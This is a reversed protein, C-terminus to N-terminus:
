ERIGVRKDKKRRRSGSDGKGIKKYGIEPVLYTVPVWSVQPVVAELCTVQLMLLGLQRQNWAEEKM